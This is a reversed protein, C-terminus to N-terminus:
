SQLFSKWALLVAKFDTLGCEAHLEEDYFDTTSGSPIEEPAGYLDVMEEALNNASVTVEDRGLQLSFTRGKDIYEYLTKAELQAIINLLIDLHPRNSSLEDTFWCGFAAHGSSFAALPQGKESTFEYEMIGACFLPCANYGIAQWQPASDSATLRYVTPQLRRRIWANPKLSM